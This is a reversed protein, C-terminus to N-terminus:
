EGVRRPDRKTATTLDFDPEHWPTSIVLGPKFESPTHRKTYVHRPPLTQTSFDRRPPLSGDDQEWGMPAVRQVHGPVPIQNEVSSKLM